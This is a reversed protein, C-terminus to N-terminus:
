GVKLCSLGLQVQSEIWNIRYLEAIKPYNYNHLTEPSIRFDAFKKFKRYRKLKAFVGSLGRGSAWSTEVAFESVLTEPGSIM